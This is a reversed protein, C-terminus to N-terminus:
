LIKPQSWSQRLGAARWPVDWGQAANGRPLLAKSPVHPLIERPRPARGPLRETVSSSGAGRGARVAGVRIKEAGRTSKEGDHAERNRKEGELRKGKKKGKSNKKIEGGTANQTQLTQHCGPSQHSQQPVPAQCESGERTPKATSPELSFDRWPKWPDWSIGEMPFPCAPPTELM